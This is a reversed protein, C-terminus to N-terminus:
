IGELAVIIVRAREPLTVDPDLSRVLGNEVVGAVAIPRRTRALHAEVPLVAAGPPLKPIELQPESAIQEDSARRQSSRTDPAPKSTSM